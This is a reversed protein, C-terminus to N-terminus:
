LSDGSVKKKGHHYSKETLKKVQIRKQAEAYISALLVYHEPNDPEVELLHEAVKEALKVDDHMKCGNLLSIWVRSDPEMPMQKIFEYGESLKGGRGLLDVICICHDMNIEMKYHNRMIEFLRLGEDVLGSHSCARLIVTFSVEDPEIRANKMENFTKIVKRGLGHIAYGAILTTWSILDKCEVANFVLRALSIAGCKVYMDILANAVYTDSLYGIRLVYAHVERGQEFASLSSLASLICAMTINDPLVEHQMKLFLDLAKDPSNNKSYGGIMTNWSVIDRTPSDDFVLQAEEMSGCKAYMDMLANCVSLNSELNNKRVYNNFNRGNTLSGTLTCAHLVNTVAFTDPKIGEDEMEHFLRIADDSLGVRAYAAVMATWSVVSKEAMNKFIQAASNLCGCKSYMDILTNGIMLDRNFCGKIAYAHLSKALMLAGVDACAALVCIMTALNAAFGAFLMQKFHILGKWPFGNSAYGSIMSNWSIVDRDTLEVFVKRASGVRECRFYFAIMSNVVVTNDRFGMKLLCAHAKEGEELYRLGSFCKYVCSFTYSNPEIGLERMRYYLRVGEEFDGVISYENILLNWLFVKENGIEDFIRRGESLDGCSVYMFVLKAGLVDEVKLGNSSIVSHVVRGCRLSRQEACLQLVLCYSNLELESKPSGSLTQIAERLSGM